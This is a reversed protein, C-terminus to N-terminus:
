RALPPEANPLPPTLTLGAAELYTELVSRAYTVYQDTGLVSGKLWLGAIVIIVTLSFSVLTRLANTPYSM